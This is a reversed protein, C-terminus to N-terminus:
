ESMEELVETTMRALEGVVPVIEEYRMRMPGIIGVNGSVHNKFKYTATIITCERLGNFMNERGIHIVTGEEGLDQNMIQALENKEEVIKLFDLVMSSAKFEPQELMHYTGEFYVRNNPSLAIGTYNTIKSVVHSAAEIVDELLRKENVYRRMESFIDDQPLLTIEMLSDVYRRYGLDTPIRGASTYPQRIYGDKELEFMVNRITASSLGLIKSIHKSGVPMASAIHTRVIAELVRNQRAEKDITM